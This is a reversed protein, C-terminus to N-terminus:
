PSYGRFVMPLYHQRGVCIGGPLVASQGRPNTVWVDYIGPPLTSPVTVRLAREDVWEVSSAAVKDLLVTPTAVFNDGTITFQTVVRADIWSPETGSVVPTYWSGLTVEDVFVCGDPSDAAQHLGVTVTVTKGAWASVEAWAQTWHTGEVATTIVETNAVGDDLAIYLRHSGPTGGEGSYLLSVTARNLSAPIVVQQSIGYEAEAAAVKSQMHFFEDLAPWRRWFVHASGAMDVLLDRDWDPFPQVAARRRWEGGLIRTLYWLTAFEPYDGTTYIVHVTGSADVDLRQGGANLDTPQGLNQPSSWNGGPSKSAYLPSGQLMWVLHITDDPGVRIRPSTWPSVSHVIEPATWTGDVLRRTYRLDTRSAAQNWISYIVHLVGTSDVALDFGTVQGALARAATWTGGRPRYLYRLQSMDNDWLLHLNGQSDTTLAPYYAYDASAQNDTVRESLCDNSGVSKHCYYLDSFTGSASGQAWAAHIGGDGDPAIAPPDRFMDVSVLVVHTVPETATIRRSAYLLDWTEEGTQLAGFLHLIQAEDLAVETSNARFLLEPQTFSLGTGLMAAWNGSHRTTNTVVPTPNGFAQWSGALGGDEFEGNQIRNDTPKVTHNAVVDETLNLRMEPSAHYGLRTARLTQNGEAQMYAVYNGNVQTSASGIPSPTGTMLANPIPRGRADRVSGTVQWTYITTQADPQTGQWVQANGANDWALARFAYTHGAPIGPFSVSTATTDELCTTFGGHELCSGWPGNDKKIEVAYNRLGSPGVDSGSWMLTFGAARSMAPLRNVRALPPTVDLSQWDPNMDYGSSIARTPNNIQAPDQPCCLREIYAARILLRNDQIVYEVRSFLAETWDYSAPYDPAPKWSGMWVDVLGMPNYGGPNYLSAAGGGFLALENWFDGDVDYDCGITTYSTHPLWVPDQLFPLSMNGTIKGPSSGNANMVWLTGNPSNSLYRVWAIKTGDSSWTPDVDDAGDVTLRTVGSGNANMVYIEYNGSRNSAFAVRNGDPSWAPAVDDSGHDTLRAVGSGNANMSYIEWNGDRNSQFVVQTAGRNLRPRVDSGAHNTLRTQHSGDGWALYIEWNGDRYSQFAVRTWEAIGGGAASATHEQQSPALPELVPLPAGTLRSRAKLEALTPPSAAVSRASVAVAFLLLVLGGAVLLRRGGM